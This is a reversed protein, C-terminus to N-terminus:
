KNILFISFFICLGGFGSIFDVFIKGYLLKRFINVGSPKRWYSYDHKASYGILLKLSTSIVVDVPRCLLRLWAYFIYYKYIFLFFWVVLILTCQLIPNPNPLVLLITLPRENLILFKPWLLTLALSFAMGTWSLGGM